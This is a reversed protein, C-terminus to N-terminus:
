NDLWVETREVESSGEQVSGWSCHCHKNAVLTNGEQFPRMGFWKRGGNKRFYLLSVLVHLIVKHEKSQALRVLSGAPM